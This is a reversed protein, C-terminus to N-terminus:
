FTEEISINLIQKCAEICAEITSEKPVICEIPALLQKTTEGIAVARYSDDWGFNNLFAEVTSPSTFIITSNIPPKKDKQYRIQKTEYLVQEKVEIGCEKLHSALDYASVKARPYYFIQKAYEKCILKALEKAGSKKPIRRVDAKLSKLLSASSKGVCLASLDLVRKDINDAAKISEKSTFVVMNAGDYELSTAVTEFEIMPLHHAKPHPTASLLYPKNAAELHQM